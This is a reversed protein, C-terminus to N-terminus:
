AALVDELREANAEAFPNLLLVGGIVAGDQMDETILVDAGHAGCVAFIIGDWIQLRRDVALAAGALVQEARTDVTPFIRSWDAALQRAEPYAAPNKGRVAALFEGLVHTTLICDADRARMVIDSAIRRKHPEQRDVAYFLINTDLSFIM